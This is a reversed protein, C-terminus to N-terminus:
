QWEIPPEENRISYIPINSIKKLYKSSSPSPTTTGVKTTTVTTTSPTTTSTSTSELTYDCINSTDRKKRRQPALASKAGLSYQKAKSGQMVQGDYFDDFENAIYFNNENSQKRKCMFRGYDEEKEGSECQDLRNQLQAVENGGVQLWWLHSDCFDMGDEYCAQYRIEVSITVEDEDAVDELPIWTSNLYLGVLRTESQACNHILEQTSVKTKKNEVPLKNLGCGLKIQVVGRSNRPVGSITIDDDKLRFTAFGNRLTYELADIFIVSLAILLLFTLKAMRRQEAFKAIMLAATVHVNLSRTHGVQKIEVTQDVARLLNVPVGEKEDGMVIVTKQKKQKMKGVFITLSSDDIASSVERITTADRTSLGFLRPPIQRVESIKPTSTSTTASM